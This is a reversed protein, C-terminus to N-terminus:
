AAAASRAAASGRRVQLQAVRDLGTKEALLASQRSRLADSSAKFRRLELEEALKRRAM